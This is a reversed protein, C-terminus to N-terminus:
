TILNGLPLIRCRCGIHLPPIPNVSQDNTVFPRAEKMAETNGDKAATLYNDMTEIADGTVFIRNHYAGCIPCMREDPRAWYKYKETKRMRQLDSFSGSLVSHHQTFMKWYAREGFKEAYATPTLQGFEARLGDVIKNRTLGQGWLEGFKQSVAKAIESKSGHDKIWAIQGTVLNEIAKLDPKDLVKRKQKWIAKNGTELAGTVAIGTSEGAETFPELFPESKSVAVIAKDIADFSFNIWESHLLPELKANFKGIPDAKLIEVFKNM